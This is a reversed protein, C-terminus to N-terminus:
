EKYTRLVSCWAPLYNTSLLFLYYSYTYIWRDLFASVKWQSSNRWQLHKLSSIISNIKIIFQVLMFFSCRLNSNCINHLTVTIRHHQYFIFILISHRTYINQNIIKDSHLNGWFLFTYLEFNLFKALSFHRFIMITKLEM